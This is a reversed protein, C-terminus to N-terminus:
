KEDWAAAARLRLLDGDAATGARHLELPAQSPWADDPLSELALTTVRRKQEGVTPWEVAAGCLWSRADERDTFRLQADGSLQARVLEVDYVRVISGVQSVCRGRGGRLVLLVAVRDGGAWWEGDVQRALARALSLDETSCVYVRVNAVWWVTSAVVGAVVAALLYHNWDRRL